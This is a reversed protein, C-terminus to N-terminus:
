TPLLRLRPTLWVAMGALWEHGRILGRKFHAYGVEVSNVMDIISQTLRLHMEDDHPIRELSHVRRGTGAPVAPAAPRKTGITAPCPTRRPRSCAQLTELDNEALAVNSEAWVPKALNRAMSSGSGHARRSGSSAASRGRWFLERTGADLARRTPDASPADLAQDQACSNRIVALSADGPKLQTVLRAAGAHARAPSTRRRQGRRAGSASEDRTVRVRWAMDPENNQELADAYSM